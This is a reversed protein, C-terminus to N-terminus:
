PFRNIKRRPKLNAWQCRSTLVESSTSVLKLKTLCHLCSFFPKFMIQWGFQYILSSQICSARVRGKNELLGMANLYFEWGRLMATFSTIKYFDCGQQLVVAIIISSIHAINSLIWLGWHEFDGKKLTLKASLGCHASFSESQQSHLDVEVSQLWGPKDDFSQEKLFLFFLCLKVPCGSGPLGEWYEM